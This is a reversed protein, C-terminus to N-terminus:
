DAVPRPRRSGARQAARTARRAAAVHRPRAPRYARLYFFHFLVRTLFWQRQWVRSAAVASTSLELLTRLSQLAQSPQARLRTRFVAITGPPFRRLHILTSSKQPRDEIHLWNAFAANTAALAQGHASFPFLESAPRLRSPADGEAVDISSRGIKQANSIPILGSFNVVSHSRGRGLMPYDQFLNVPSFGDVADHDQEAPATSALMSACAAAIVWPEGPNEAPHRAIYQMMPLPLGELVTLRSEAGRIIEATDGHTPKKASPVEVSALFVLEASLGHLTTPM